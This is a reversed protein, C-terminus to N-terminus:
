PSLVLPLVVHPRPAMESSNLATDVALVTVDFRTLGGPLTASWNGSGDTAVSDILVGGGGPLSPDGM